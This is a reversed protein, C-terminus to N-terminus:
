ASGGQTECTVVAELHAVRRDRDIATIAWRLPVGHPELTQAIATPWAIAAEPLPIEVTVFRTTMM